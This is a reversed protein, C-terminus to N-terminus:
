PELIRFTAAAAPAVTFTRNTTGTQLTQWVLADPSGAVAVSVTSGPPYTWNLVFNTGIREIGELRPSARGAVIDFAVRQTAGSPWGDVHDDLGLSIQVNDGDVMNTDWRNFTASWNLESRSALGVASRLDVFQARAPDEAHRVALTSSTVARMVLQTYWWYYPSVTIVPCASTAHDLGTQTSETFIWKLDHSSVLRQFRPTWADNTHTLDNTIGVYRHAQDFTDYWAPLPSLHDAVYMSSLGLFRWQEQLPRHHEHPPFVDRGSRNEVTMDCRLRTEHARPPELAAELRIGFRDGDTSDNSAEASATWDGAASVTVTWSTVSCRDRPLDSSSSFYRFMRCSTGWDAGVRVVRWFGDSTFSCVEYTTTPSTQRSVVMFNGSTTTAPFQIRAAPLGLTADTGFRTRWLGQTHVGDALALCPLAFPYLWRCRTM